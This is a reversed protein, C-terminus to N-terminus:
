AVFSNGFRRRQPFFDEKWLEINSEVFAWPDEKSHVVVHSEPSSPSPLVPVAVILKSFHDWTYFKRLLKTWSQLMPTALRTGLATTVRKWRFLCGQQHDCSRLRPSRSLPTVVQRVQSVKVLFIGFFRGIRPFGPFKQKHFGSYLQLFGSIGSVIPIWFGLDVSFSRSDLAQFRSDM